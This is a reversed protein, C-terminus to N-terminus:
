QPKTTNLLQLVWSERLQLVIAQQLAIGVVSGTRDAQCLLPVGLKRSLM